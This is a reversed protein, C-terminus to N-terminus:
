KMVENWHQMANKSKADFSQGWTSLNMTAMDPHIEPSTFVDNWVRLIFKVGNTWIRGSCLFYSTQKHWAGIYWQEMRYFPYRGLYKWYAM